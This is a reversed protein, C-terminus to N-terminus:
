VAGRPSALEYESIPQQAAAATRDQEVAAEEHSASTALPALCIRWRAAIAETQEPAITNELCALLDEQRPQAFVMRYLALSRRLRQYRAEERSLPLLMVRREISAGGEREFIWYPVLDNSGPTREAVARQFMRAWPDRSSSPLGCWGADGYQLAVNKRVAHGKYRHVRGERQEMDVPNAPLNWHIVSHCWTHFDLGEQGVSTSVLVFPWFPSNFGAQVTEKRAAAGDDDSKGGYRLAFHTRIAHPFPKIQLREDTVLIEDPRLPAARLAMADFMARALEDLAAAPKLPALNKSEMLVHVHEDLMAQLNGDAGYQLVKEWYADDDGLSKLLGVARPANFQSRLGEAMRVACGLQADDGAGSLPWHWSLSRLACTAPGALALKALVDLLDRPVRGLADIRGDWAQLWQEMHAHFASDLDHVHDEAGQRADSWLHECWARSEPIQARELRALAVWYWRRDFPGHGISRDVMPEILPALLAVARQQLQEFSVVNGGADGRLKLPDVLKVLARSPFMLMLTTMGSLRADARRSFTLRPALKNPMSSQDTSVGSQAVIRREVEYSLVTALADPVVNWASFILHKTVSGVHEYVGQPKWYALSPPMWLLRWLGQADMENMLCRLRPNGMEMTEYAAVKESSLLSAGPDLILDAVCSKRKGQEDRLAQKQSYERMFNLLYPSSKWYEMTDSEGIKEAIADLWRFDRLDSAQLQPLMSRESVMADARLTAGVRETRCMCARLTAEIRGKLRDLEDLQTGHQAGLLGMRFHHLDQELASVGEPDDPMLFHVTRVFDQYHNEDEADAAYMKYPTASLLLVRLDASYNFLEHTLEAAENQQPDEFLESFRQFEDLIVLDPKLAGLCVKALERRLSATLRLCRVEVEPPIRHRRDRYAESLAELEKTLEPQESVRAQYRAAIDGDFDQPLDAENVWTSAGAAGRMANRLGNRSVGPMERLMQYILRREDKRGRSGSQNFTTGPTFSIFNVRHQRLEPIMLPLLTLRTAQAFAPQDPLSLRHVNQAAIGANSCVYVVNVHAQRRQLHEVMRAIVGKAVLTKGLGVEDAVLFRRAPSAPDFLRSFVHDVTLRQFDKLSQLVPRANFFATM